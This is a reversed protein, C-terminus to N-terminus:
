ELFCFFVVNWRNIQYKPLSANGWIRLFRKLLFISWLLAASPLSSPAPASGPFSCRQSGLSHSRLLGVNILPLEQLFQNSGILSSIVPGQTMGRNFFFSSPGLRAGEGARLRGRLEALDKKPCDTRWGKGFLIRSGHHLAEGSGPNVFSCLLPGSRQGPGPGCPAGCVGGPLAAFRGHSRGEGSIRSLLSGLGQWFPWLGESGGRTWVSITFPWCCAWLRLQTPLVNGFTSGGWGLGLWPAIRM